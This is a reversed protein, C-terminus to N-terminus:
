GRALLLTTPHSPAATCCSSLPCRRDTTVARCTSSIPEAEPRIPIRVSRLRRERRCRLVPRTVKPRVLGSLDRASGLQGLSDLLGRIGEPIHPQDMGGLCGGSQAKSPQTPIWSNATELSRRVIDLVATMQESPRQQGDGEFNSHPVWSSANSLTSRVFAMTKALRERRALRSSNNM